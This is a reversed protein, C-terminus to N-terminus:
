ASNIASIATTRNKGAEEQEVLEARQEDTLGETEVKEALEDRLESVSYKSPDPLVEGVKDREVRTLVTISHNGSDILTVFEGDPEEYERNGTDKLTEEQLM